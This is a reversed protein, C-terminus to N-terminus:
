SNTWGTSPIRCCTSLASAMSTKAKDLYIGPLSQEQRTSLDHTFTLDGITLKLAAGDELHNDLNIFGDAWQTDITVSWSVLSSTSLGFANDETAEFIKGGGSYQMLAASATTALFLGFCLTLIATLLTKHMDDELHDQQMPLSKAAAM